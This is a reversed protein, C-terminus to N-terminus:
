EKRGFATLEITQNSRTRKDFKEITTRRVWHNIQPAYWMVVQAETLRSPDAANLERMQREIKFTEFTGAPTTVTEQAVVKSSSSGKFSKGTKASRQEFESRWQKGVEIPFRVGQGDNPKFRQDGNTTRNWEHDFVVTSMRDTEILSTVIEGPSIETVVATYTRKSEGTIEDKTDYTWRDGVRVPNGPDDPSQAVLIRPWLAALGVFLVLWHRTVLVEM